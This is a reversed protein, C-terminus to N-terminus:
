AAQAPRNTSWCPSFCYVGFAEAKKLLERLKRDWDGCGYNPDIQPSSYSSRFYYGGNFRRQPELWVLIAPWRTSTAIAVHRLKGRHDRKRVILPKGSKRGCIARYVATAQKQGKVSGPVDYVITRAISVYYVGNGSLCLCCDGQRELVSYSSDSM